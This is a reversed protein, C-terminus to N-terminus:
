RQMLYIVCYQVDNAQRSLLTTIETPSTLLADGETASKPATDIVKSVLFYAYPTKSLDLLSPRLEELIQTRQDPTGYKVCAQLIRSGPPSAAMRTLDGKLQFFYIFLELVM